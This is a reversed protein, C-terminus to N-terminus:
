RRYRVRIAGNSGVYNFNIRLAPGGRVYHFGGGYYPYASTWGFGPYHSYSGTRFYSGVGYYPSGIMVPASWYGPSYWGGPYGYRGYYGHRGYGYRDYGRYGYNRWEIWQPPIQFGFVPGAQAYPYCPGLYSAYGSGVYGHRAITRQRIQEIEERPTPGPAEPEPRPVLEFAPEGDRDAGDAGPAVVMPTQPPPSAAVVEDCKAAGEKAPYVLPPADVQRSSAAAQAYAQQYLDRAYGSAFGDDDGALVPSGIMFLFGALAVTTPLTIRPM